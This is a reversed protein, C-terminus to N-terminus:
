ISQSGGVTHRADATSSNFQHPSLVVETIPLQLTLRICNAANCSTSPRSTPVWPKLTNPEKSLAQLSVNRETGGRLAVALQAIEKVQTGEYHTFNGPTIEETDATV